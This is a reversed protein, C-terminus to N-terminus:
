GSVVVLEPNSRDDVLDSGSPPVVEITLTGRNQGSRFAVEAYEDGGNEDDVRLTAEHSDTGTEVVVPDNSLPASGGTVIFQADEVPTGDETVAALTVSEDISLDVLEESMTVTVETEGFDDVDDLMGMMLSLAVIGVAVAIVLRIPLGEIAREDAVFRDTMGPRPGRETIFERGVM